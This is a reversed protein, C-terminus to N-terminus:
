SKRQLNFQHFLMRKKIRKKENRSYTKRHCFLKLNKKENRFSKRFYVKQKYIFFLKNEYLKYVMLAHM